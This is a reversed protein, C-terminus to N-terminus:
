VWRCAWPRRCIAGSITVWRSLVGPATEPTCEKWVGKVKELPGMSKAKAVTFLRLKPNTAAAIDKRAEFSGQLGFEMNSQGSCIWVEGILVDKLEVKNKGQITLTYPGGAPLPTLQSTWKGDANATASASTGTENSLSIRIQEGPEATGWIFIPKERQLVAHHTFLSNPVVEARAVPVLALVALSVLRYSHKATM